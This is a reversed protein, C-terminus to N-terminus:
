KLSREISITQNKNNQYTYVTCHVINKELKNRKNKKRKKGGKGERM